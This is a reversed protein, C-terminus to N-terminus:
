IKVYSGLIARLLLALLWYIMMYWWLFQYKYVKVDISATWTLMNLTREVTLWVSYKGKKEARVYMSSYRDSESWPGDSDRGYETWYDGMMQNVVGTEEEIFATQVFMDSPNAPATGFRAQTELLYIANDDKIEFTPSFFEVLTDMAPAGTSDALGNKLEFRHTFVEKYSFFSYCFLVFFIWATLRALTTAFKLNFQKEKAQKIKPNEEFARLVEAFSIPEAVYYEREDIANRGNIIPYEVTYKKSGDKYLFFQKIQPEPNEPYGNEGVFDQLEATGFEIIQFNANSSNFDTYEYEVGKPVVKYRPSIATSFSFGEKDELLYIINGETDRLIWELYIWSSQSYGKGESSTWFEQYHMYWNAVGIIEYRTGHFNGWFGIELSARSTIM